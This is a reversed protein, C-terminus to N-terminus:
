SRPSTSSSAPTAVLADILPGAFEGKTNTVPIKVYVNTAGRPSRAGQANWRRRFRRRVSRVLGAPGSDVKLVELAFAKYDTIGAKRM